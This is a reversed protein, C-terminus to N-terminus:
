RKEMSKRLKVVDVLDQPRAAATKNKILDECGIFFVSIGEVAVTEKRNWCENFTLPKVDMLIDVRFPEVGMKYFSNTDTFDTASLDTLPAGFENLAEFVHHANEKSPNVWIDLDKTARVESYKSVAYGGIVLYEVHHQNFLDLLDLFDKHM